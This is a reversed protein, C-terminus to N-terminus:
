AAARKRAAARTSASGKGPKSATKGGKGAVVRYVRKGDKEALVLNLGLKKRVVGAFFGHVSHKQWGTAKMVAAVTTGEARQLMAVVRDQKSLTRTAPRTKQAPKGPSPSPKRKSAAVTHKVVSKAGAPRPQKTNSEAPALNTEQKATIM